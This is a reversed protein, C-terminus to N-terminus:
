PTTDSTIDEPYNIKIEPPTLDVTFYNTTYNQNPGGDNAYVTVWHDGEEFGNEGIGVTATIGGLGEPVGIDHAEGGTSAVMKPNEFPNAGTETGYAAYLGGGISWGSAVLLLDQLGDNNCDFQIGADRHQMSLWDGSKLYNATSQGGWNRSPGPGATRYLYSCRGNYLDDYGDGNDDIVWTQGYPGVRDNGVISSHKVFGGTGDGWYLHGGDTNGGCHRHFMIIDANGDGDFDGCVGGAVNYGTSDYQDIYTENFTGDGNSFLVIVHAGGSQYQTAIDLNGDENFDCVALDAYYTSHTTITSRTFSWYDDGNNRYYYIYSGTNAVYDYDGDNDFDAIALKRMSSGSSQWTGWECEGGVYYSYRGHSAMAYIKPLGETLPTPKAGHEITDFYIYYKYDTEKALTENKTLKWRVMAKGSSLWRLVESPLEESVANTVRISNQDITGSEGLADLISGFDIISQTVTHAKRPMYGTNVTVNTRYTWYISWWKDESGGPVLAREFSSCGTCATVEPENDLYYWMDGTESSTANLVVTEGLQALSVAPEQDAYKRVFIYDVKLKGGTDYSHLVPHLETNPTPSNVDSWHSFHIINERDDFLYFYLPKSVDYKFKTYYTMWGWLDRQSQGKNTQEIDYYGDSNFLWNFGTGSTGINSVWKLSSDCAGIRLEASTGSVHIKSELVASTPLNYNTAWLGNYSLTVWSDSVTPKPDRRYTWRTENINAGEFDEFFEFVANGNSQSAMSFNEFYPEVYIVSNASIFPMKIWFKTNETNCDSELWYNLQIGDLTRFRINACDDKLKGSSVLAETDVNLAVQYNTLDFGSTERIEFVQSQINYGLIYSNDTPKIITVNPTLAYVLNALVLLLFIGFLYNGIACSSRGCLRIHDPKNSM